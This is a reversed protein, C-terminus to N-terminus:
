RARREVTAEIVGFPETTAHFVEGRDEVGFRSVDVAPPPPQAAHPPHARRRTPRWRRRGWGTCRSSSRRATTTPSRASSRTARPRGPTRPRSAATTWDATVITALIRDETEPLTTYRDRDFGSFGLGVLAARAPGRHRRRPPRRARRGRRRARAHRRRRAALRPGGPAGVSARAPPRHRHEVPGLGLFPSALAAAVASRPRPLPRGRLRLRRQADHRHGPPRTTATRRPGGRLRRAPHDPRDPRPAPPAGPRAHGQRRPDRGQRLTDAGLM